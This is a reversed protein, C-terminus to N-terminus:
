SLKHWSKIAASKAGGAKVLESVEQCVRVAETLQGATLNKKQMTVKELSLIIKDLEEGKAVMAKLDKEIKCGQTNPHMESAEYTSTWELNTRDLAGHAKRLNSLAKKTEDDMVWKLEKGPPGPMTSAVSSRSSVQCGNGENSGSGSSMAQSMRIRAEAEAHTHQETLEPTAEFSVVVVVM